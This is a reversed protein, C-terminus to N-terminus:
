VKKVLANKIYWTLYDNIYYWLHNKLLIIFNYSTTM